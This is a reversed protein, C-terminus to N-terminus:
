PARRTFEATEGSDPDILLLRGNQLRYSVTGRVLSVQCNPFNGKEDYKAELVTLQNATTQAPSAVRAVFTRGRYSCRNTATIRSQEIVLSALHTMGFKEVKPFYWEGYLGKDMGTERDEGVADSDSPVEAPVANAPVPMEENPPEASTLGLAKLIGEPNYGRIVRSGVTSFPVDTGGLKRYRMKASPSRDIDHRTYRINKAILFRELKRCYACWPTVYVELSPQTTGSQTASPRQPQAAPGSRKPHPKTEIAIARSKYEPPIKGEDGVVHIQGSDDRYRYMASHAPLAPGM